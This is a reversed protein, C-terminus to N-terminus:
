KKPHIRRRPSESQLAGKWAIRIKLLFRLYLSCVTLVFVEMMVLGWAIHHFFFLDYALFCGFVVLVGAGTVLSLRVGWRYEMLLGAAAAGNAIGLFSCAMLVWDYANWARPMSAMEVLSYGFFLSLLFIVAALGKAWGPLLDARCAPTEPFGPLMDGTRLLNNM